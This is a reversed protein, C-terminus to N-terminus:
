RPEEDVLGTAPDDETQGAPLPGPLDRGTLERAEDLTELLRGRLLMSAERVMGKSRPWPQADITVPRGFVLDIRSGRTPTSDIGGGPERSGLIIVPVVAAGTVLALYAAGHHFRHLEGDGRTGEPFVGVVRGDRLVRLATRVARPDAAFRDIPIQGTRRLLQGTRGRFMEIKTLAHVPRPAFLALLPGDLVGIHNAVFIVPGVAPVQDTGHLRVDYRRSVVRQAAPRGRYLLQRPPHVVAASSPPEHHTM